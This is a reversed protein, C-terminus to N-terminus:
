HKGLQPLFSCDFATECLSNRMRFTSSTINDQQSSVISHEIRSSTQLKDRAYYGSFLLTASVGDWVSYFNSSSVLRPASAWAQCGIIRQVINLAQPFPNRCCTHSAVALGQASSCIPSWTWTHLSLHQYIIDSWNTLRWNESLKRRAIPYAPKCNGQGGTQSPRDDFAIPCLLTPIRFTTLSMLVKRM